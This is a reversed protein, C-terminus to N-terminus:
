AKKVLQRIAFGNLGYALLVLVIYAYEEFVGLVSLPWLGYFCVVFGVLAFIWKSSATM